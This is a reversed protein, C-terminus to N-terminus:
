NAPKAPQSVGRIEVVRQADFTQGSLLETFQVAVTISPAPPSKAAASWPTRLNYHSTMLSGYWLAQMQEATWQGNGVIRPRDPQSLDYLRVSASGAAKIADGGRDFLRLYVVVGDDTGDRDDDYGGSLREIEIRAVRVLMDLRHSADMGQLKQIMAAQEALQQEQQVRRRQEEALKDELQQVQTTRTDAKPADCAALGGIFLFNGIWVARRRTIPWPRSM